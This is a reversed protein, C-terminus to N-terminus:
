PNKYVAVSVLMTSWAVFLVLAWRARNGIIAGIGMGFAVGPFLLLLLLTCTICLIVMPPFGDPLSAHYLSEAMRFSVVGAGCWLSSELLQKFMVGFRDTLTM